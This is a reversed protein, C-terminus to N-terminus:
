NKVPEADVPLQVIDSYSQIAESKFASLLDAIPFLATELRSFGPRVLPLPSLEGSITRVMARIFVSRSQLPLASVNMYFKKWGDANQFLYQEVNSTYFATVTSNHDKLYQGVSRIATPGAFDGVLPM